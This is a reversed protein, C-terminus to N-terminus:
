LMGLYRCINNFTNHLALAELLFGTSVWHNLAILLEVLLLRIGDCTLILLSQELLIPASVAKHSVARSFQLVYSFFETFYLFIFDDNCILLVTRM